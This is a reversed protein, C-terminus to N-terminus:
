MGSFPNQYDNNAPTTSSATAVQDFPNEYSASPTSFPNEFEPSPTVYTVAQRMVQPAYQNGMKAYLVFGVGSLAVICLLVLLITVFIHPHHTTTTTGNADPTVQLRVPEM